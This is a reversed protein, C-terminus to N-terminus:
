SHFLKESVEIDTRANKKKRVKKSSVEVPESNQTEVTEAKMPVEVEEAEILIEHRANKETSLEVIREEDVKVGFRPFTDGAKYVHGGDKLDKFDKVVKYEM